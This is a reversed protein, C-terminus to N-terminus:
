GFLVDFRLLTQDMMFDYDMISRLALGDGRVVCAQDYGRPLPAEGCVRAGRFRLENALAEAAPEIHRKADLGYRDMNLPPLMDIYIQRTLWAEGKKRGDRLELPLGNLRSLMAYHMENTIQQLTLLAGASVAPLAVAKADPRWLLAEPAIILGATSALLRGIFGRRDM